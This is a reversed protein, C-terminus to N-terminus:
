LLEQFQRTRRGPQPRRAARRSKIIEHPLPHLRSLEGRCVSPECARRLNAEFRCEILRKGHRDVKDNLKWAGDRTSVRKFKTRSAILQDYAEFATFAAIGFRIGFGIGIWHCHVAGDHAVICFARLTFM